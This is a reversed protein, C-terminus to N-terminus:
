GSAMLAASDSSQPIEDLEDPWQKLRSLRPTIFLLPLKLFLLEGHIFADDFGIKHKALNSAAKDDDWEFREDQM